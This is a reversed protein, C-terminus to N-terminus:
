QTTRCTGFECRVNLMSGNTCAVTYVDYGPGTRTRNAIPQPTCMAAIAMKEVARSDEGVVLTSAVTTARVSPQPAQTFNTASNIYPSPASTNTAVTSGELVRYGRGALCNAIITEQKSVAKAGAGAVGAGGGALAGREATYSNGGIAAGVLAGILIGGLMGAMAQKGPDIQKAYSRCGALDSAYRTGDLGQMDVFPTYTDGSGAGPTNPPAVACGSIALAAAIAIVKQM